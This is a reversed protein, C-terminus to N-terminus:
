GKNFLPGRRIASWFSSSDISPVCPSSGSHPHTFPMSHSSTQQAPDSVFTDDLVITWNIRRLAEPRIGENFRIWVFIGAFLDLLLTADS